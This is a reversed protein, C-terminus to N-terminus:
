VPQTRPLEVTFCCSKGPENEVDITGGHAEVAQKVIMLGLGSGGKGSDAQVFPKFLKPMFDEPIGGCEDRVTFVARSDTHKATVAIRGGNRTFKVANRMLNILASGLLTRDAELTFDEVRNSLLLGKDAIQGALDDHASEVLEISRLCEVNLRPEGFLRAEILSDDVLEELQALARDLRELHPVREAEPVRALVQAALRASHLPNRIEHAIFSFHQAAQDALQKDRLAAYASVSAAAGLGIIYTMRLLDDVAFDEGKEKALDAVTEGVLHMERILSGADVGVELRQRGHGEASEIHPWGGAKSRLAEIVDDIFHPLHDLLASRDLMLHLREPAHEQWREIVQDKHAAIFDALRVHAAGRWKLKVGDHQSQTQM